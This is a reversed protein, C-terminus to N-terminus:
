PAARPREDLMRSNAMAGTVGMGPDGCDRGRETHGSGNWPEPLATKLRLRWATVFACAVFLWHDLGTALCPARSAVDLEARARVLLPPPPPSASPHPTFKYDKFVCPLESCLCARHRHAIRGERGGKKGKEGGREKERGGERGGQAIPSRNYSGTMCRRGLPPRRWGHRFAPALRARAHAYDQPPMLCPSSASDKHVMIMRWCRTFVDRQILTMENTIHPPIFTENTISFMENRVREIRSCRM